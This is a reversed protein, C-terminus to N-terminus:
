EFARKARRRACGRGEGLGKGSDRGRSGKGLGEPLEKGLTREKLGKDLLVINSADFYGQRNRSLWSKM